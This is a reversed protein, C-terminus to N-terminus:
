RADYSGRFGKERLCAALLPLARCKITKINAESEGLQKAIEGPEDPWGLELWLQMVAKAKGPLSNVCSRVLETVFSLDTQAFRGQKAALTELTDHAVQRMRVGTMEERFRDQEKDPDPTSGDDEPEHDASARIESKRELFLRHRRIDTFVGQIAKLAYSLAADGGSESLCKLLAAKRGPVEFLKQFADEADFRDPIIKMARGILRERHKQLFDALRQEENM